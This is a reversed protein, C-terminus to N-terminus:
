KAKNEKINSKDFNNVNTELCDNNKILNGYLRRDNKWNPFYLKKNEKPRVHLELLTPGILGCFLHSFDQFMFPGSRSKKNILTRIIRNPAFSHLWILLLVLWDGELRRSSLNERTACKVSFLQICM